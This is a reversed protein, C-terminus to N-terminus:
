MLDRLEIINIPKSTKKDQSIETLKRHRVYNKQFNNQFEQAQLFSLLFCLYCLTLAIKKYLTNM